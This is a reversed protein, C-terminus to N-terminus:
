MMTKKKKKSARVEHAHIVLTPTRGEWAVVSTRTMKDIRLRTGKAMLVEREHSAHSIRDVSVGSRQNIKLIVGYSRGARKSVNDSVFRRAQSTDRSASTVANLHISKSRMLSKLQASTVSMGRYITQQTKPASRLATNISRAQQASAASGGIGADAKRIDIFGQGSTYHEIAERQESSIYKSFADSRAGAAADGAVAESYNHELKSEPLAAFAAGGGAVSGDKGGGHGGGGSGKSM